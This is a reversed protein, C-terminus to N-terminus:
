FELGERQEEHEDRERAVETISRLEDVAQAKSSQHSVVLGIVSQHEGTM